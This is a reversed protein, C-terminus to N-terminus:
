KNLIRQIAARVSIPALVNNNADKNTIKEVDLLRGAVAAAIDGALEQKSQKSWDKYEMTNERQKQIYRELNFIGAMKAANTPFPTPDSGVGHMGALGYANNWYDELQSSYGSRGTSAGGDIYAGVGVPFEHGGPPLFFGHNHLTFGQWPYRAWTAMGCEFRAFHQAVGADVGPIRWDICFDRDHTGASARVDDNFTPQIVEVGNGFRAQAKQDMQDLAAVFFLCGRVVENYISRKSWQVTLKSREPMRAIVDWDLPQGGPYTLVTM